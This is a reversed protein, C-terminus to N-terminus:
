TTATSTAYPSSEQRSRDSGRTVTISRHLARPSRASCSGYAGSRITISTDNMESVFTNGATSAQAASRNSKSASILGCNSTPRPCTPFPPTTREASSRRRARM